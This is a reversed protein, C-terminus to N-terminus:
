QSRLGFLHVISEYFEHATYSDFEDSVVFDGLENSFHVSVEWVNIQDDLVARPDIDGAEQTELDRLEVIGMWSEFRKKVKM